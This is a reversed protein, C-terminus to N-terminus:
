YRSIKRLLIIFPVLSVRMFNMKFIIQLYFVPSNKIQDRWDVIDLNELLFLPSSGMMYLFIKVSLDPMLGNVLIQFGSLKVAAVHRFKESVAGKYRWRKQHHDIIQLIRHSHWQIPDFLM